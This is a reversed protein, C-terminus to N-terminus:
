KVWDITELRFVCSTRSWLIVTQPSYTKVEEILGEKETDIYELRALAAQIKTNQLNPPYNKQLKLM